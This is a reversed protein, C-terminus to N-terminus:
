AWEIHRGIDRTSSRRGLRFPFRAVSLDLGGQGFIKLKGAQADDLCVNAADIVNIFSMWYWCCM